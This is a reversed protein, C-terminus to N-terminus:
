LREFKARDSIGIVFPRATRNCYELIEDIHQLVFIMMGPANRRARGTFIFAGIGAAEMARREHPKRKVGKDHSVWFWNKAGLAAFVDVDSTGSKFHELVHWADYKFLRLAEPLYPPFNEDFCLTM